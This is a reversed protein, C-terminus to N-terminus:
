AGARSHRGDPNGARRRRPGQRGAGPYHRDARCLGHRPPEQGAGRRGGGAGRWGSPHPGLASRRDTRRARAGPPLAPWQRAGAGRAGAAIQGPACTRGHPATRWAGARRHPAADLSVDTGTGRAGSPRLCPRFSGARHAGGGGARRAQQAARLHAIENGPIIRSSFIVADGKGLQVNPHNGEAIRALAARPEGQSGTFLYLVQRAAIRAAEAEDLVPPFDKLYGTERAAQVIKHM